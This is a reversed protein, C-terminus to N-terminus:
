SSHSWVMEACANAEIAALEIKLDKYHEGRPKKAFYSKEFDEVSLSRDTEFLKAKGYYVRLKLPFTGDDLARRTDLYLSVKAKKSILEM